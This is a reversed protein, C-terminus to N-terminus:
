EKEAEGNDHEWARQCDKSCFARDGPFTWGKRTADLKMGRRNIGITTFRGATTASCMDCVLETWVYTAM